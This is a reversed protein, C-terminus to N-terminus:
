KIPEVLDTLWEATPRGLIRADLYAMQPTLATKCFYYDGMDELLAVLDPKEPNTLYLPLLYRVAGARGSQVVIQPTIRTKRRSLEIATEFLLLLNWAKRISEPFRELNEPKKLIHDTNSIIPLDPNFPKITDPVLKRHEPPHHVGRTVLNISDRIGLCYWRSKSHPNRNKEFALYLGRYEPTYLGTHFYCLGKHFLIIKDCDEDACSNYELARETYTRTIYNTLIVMGPYAVDRSPDITKFTWPEPMAQAIITSYLGYLNPIYAFDFIELPIEERKKPASPTPASVPATKATEPQIEPKPVTKEAKEVKEAEPLPSIETKQAKELRTRVTYESVGFISGIQYNSLGKEKLELMEQIEKDLAKKKRAQATTDKPKAGIHRCVTAYSIGLKEAIEVNSLGQERLVLMEETTAVCKKSM